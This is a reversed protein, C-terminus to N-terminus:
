TLPHMAIVRKRLALRYNHAECAEAALEPTDMVGILPDSDSAEPGPQMYVTRGVKRGTRWPQRLPDRAECRGCPQSCAPDHHSTLPVGCEPCRAAEDDATGTETTTAM